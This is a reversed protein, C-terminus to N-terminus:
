QFTIFDLYVHHGLNLIKSSAANRLSKPFVFSNHLFNAFEDHQSLKIFLKLKRDKIM